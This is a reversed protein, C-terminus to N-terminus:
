FLGIIHEEDDGGNKKNKIEQALEMYPRASETGKPMLAVPVSHLSAKEYFDDYPIVTKFFVEMPLANKIQNFIEKQIESENNIMTILVGEINLKSNHNTKIRKVLKLFLPITKLSIARCNVALIYSDSISLLSSVIGGIGAPADIIVYDFGRTLPQIILGLSGNRAENEFLLVVDPNLEGMGVIAMTKDKTLAIVEEPGATNKLLDILGFQTKKKLNTAIALAGQPDADILMVRAGCRTLSYALNLATTTKGVGGKQSAVTIIKGM